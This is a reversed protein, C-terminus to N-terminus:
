EALVRYVTLPTRTGTDIKQLWQPISGRVLQASFGNPARYTDIYTENNGPCVVVYDAKTQSIIRRAEAVDGEFTDIGALIGAGNRHYNGAIVSHPSFKLIAPGLNALTMIRGAPLKALPKLAEPSLCDGQTDPTGSAPKVAQSVAGQPDSTNKAAFLAPGLGSWTLNCSLIWASALALQSKASAGPQASATRLRAIWAALPIIAVAGAFAYGRMQWFTVGLTFLLAAGVVGDRVGFNKHVAKSALVALAILPTATVTLATGPEEALLTLISRAEKITSLWLDYLRPDAIALPERLCDGFVGIAIGAVVTALVALATARVALSRGGLLAAIAALGLGGAAGVLVHVISLADCATTLYRAAPITALSVLTTSAAFSLGFGGAFRRDDPGGFVHLAASAGAMAVVPLTEMGIALMLAALAGGFLGRRLAPADDLFQMLLFLTLAIQANHHDLAAPLFYPSFGFLLTGLVIAPFIASEGGLMRACRALAYLAAFMIFLPWLQSVIAEGDLGLASATLIIAAQPADILRSWHMLTGGDDVGMRYQHLDFWGQGALLDRVMVLRLISDGDDPLYGHGILPSFLSLFVVALLAAMAPGPNAFLGGRRRRAEGPGIMTAQMAM